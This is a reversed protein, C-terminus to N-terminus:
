APTGTAVPNLFRRGAYWPAGQRLIRGVIMESGRIELHYAAGEPTVRGRLINLTVGAQRSWRDLLRGALIRNPIALNLIATKVTETSM